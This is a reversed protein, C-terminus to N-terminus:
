FGLYFILESLELDSMEWRPMEYALTQGDRGIGDRIAQRLSSRPDYAAREVSGQAFLAPPTIPPARRWFEPMMRKGGRRDAGHCDACGAGRLRWGMSGGRYPIRRGRAGTGTFYIREGVSM